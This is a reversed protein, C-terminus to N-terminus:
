SGPTPTPTAGFTRQRAAYARLAQHYQAIDFDPWCVDAVYLEAYSIQWLLYNSLRMEGATRILLDPDPLGATDLHDSILQEDIEDPSLSGRQVQRAIDRVADTIEARSGYDIAVAFKFGTCAATAAVTKDLQLLVQQPLNGRRGIHLLRINNAALDERQQVLYRVYLDMLTQVEDNARAWNETSFSFVTLAEIGLRMSEEVLPRVREAGRIHGFSRSKGHQRAWRGNGDMIIAVHRPMPLQEIPALDDSM